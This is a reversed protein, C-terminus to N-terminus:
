GVGGHRRGRLGEVRGRELLESNRKRTGHRRSRRRRRPRPRRIVQSEAEASLSICAFKGCSKVYGALGGLM